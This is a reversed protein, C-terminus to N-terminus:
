SAREEVPPEGVWRRVNGSLRAVEAAFLDARDPNFFVQGLLLDHCRCVLRIRVQPNFGEQKVVDIDFGTRPCTLREALRRLWRM